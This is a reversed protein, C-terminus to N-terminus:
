AVKSRGRTVTPNSPGGRTTDTKPQSRDVGSARRPRTQDVDSEAVSPLPTKAKTQGGPAAASAGAHMGEQVPLDPEHDGQGAYESAVSAQVAQGPRAQGPRASIVHDDRSADRSAGKEARYKAARKRDQALKAEMRQDLQAASSQTAEFDAILWGGDVAIWLGAVVLASATTVDARPILALDGSEIRGDTRNAVSWTMALVFLRFERDPLRAIRRDNLWREPFRADTV